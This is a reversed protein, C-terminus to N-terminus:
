GRNTIALAKLPTLRGTARPPEAAPTHKLGKPPADIGDIMGPGPEGGATSGM